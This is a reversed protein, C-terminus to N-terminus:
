TIKVVVVRIEDVTSSSSPIRREGSGNNGLMSHCLSAFGLMGKPKGV